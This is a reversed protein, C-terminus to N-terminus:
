GKYSLFIGVFCLSTFIVFATRLSTLFLSYYQPAIQVNGIYIAFTLMAIGMSLTQGIMRM